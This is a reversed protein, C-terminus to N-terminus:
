ATPSKTEIIQSITVWCRKPGPVGGVVGIVQREADVLGIVNQTTMQQGGKRGAMKKGKFVRRPGIFGISGPRRLAGKHGHSKPQRHFNHRKITGAFGKGKSVATLRVQDEVQFQDVSLQEAPQLSTPPESPLRIERCARPYHKLKQAQFHGQQPKPCKDHRGYGIQIAWYGDKDATKVQTFM